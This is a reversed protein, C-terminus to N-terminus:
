HKTHRAITKGVRVAFLGVEAAQVVRFVPGALMLFTSRQLDAKALLLRKQEEIDRLGPRKSM